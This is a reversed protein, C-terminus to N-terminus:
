RLGKQANRRCPAHWDLEANIPVIRAPNIMDHSYYYHRAIHEMNVTPSISPHQYLARTHDWLNPFDVLRNRNCKFHTHYVTDFRVLTTFLRMDAETIRDGLLWDQTALRDEITDLTNFLGIVAEDYAHQSTAFGARYVGNNINSYIWDNITEIDDRMQVPWLDIKNGTVGNFAGNFMRIIESSENSVITMQEKDWLVPVTVRTTIDAEVLTYIEHLFSKGLIEDETAAPFSADFSWGQEMMDPHVVSVTIHDALGKIQRFILTRHAWPCALSVYLHYRGPQAKFGGVGSPGAQGDATVWNRFQAKTREFSGGTSTTDYWQDEWRGKVLLGM